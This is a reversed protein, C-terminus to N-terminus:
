RTACSMAAPRVDIWASPLPHVARTPPRWRPAVAVGDIAQKGGARSAFPGVELAHRGQHARGLAACRACGLTKECALAFTSCQSLFPFVARIRAASFRRRSITSRRMPCPALGLWPSRGPLVASIRARGPRRRCSPRADGSPWLRRSGSPRWHSSPASRRRRPRDGRMTLRSISAPAAVSSTSPM